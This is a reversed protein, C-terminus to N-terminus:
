VANEKNKEGFVAPKQGWIEDGIDDLLPFNEFFRIFITM